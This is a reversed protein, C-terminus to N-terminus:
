TDQPVYREVLLVDERSLRPGEACAVIAVAVGNARVIQVSEAGESITIVPPTDGRMYVVAIKGEEPEEGAILAGEPEEGMNQFLPM